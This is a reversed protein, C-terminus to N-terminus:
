LKTQMGIWIGYVLYNNIKVWILNANNFLDGKAANFIVSNLLKMKPRKM